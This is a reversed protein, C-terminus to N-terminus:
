VYIACLLRPDLCRPRRRCRKNCCLLIRACPKSLLIHLIHKLDLGFSTLLPPPAGACVHPQPTPARPSASGASPWPSAVPSWRICDRRMIPTPYVCALSALPVLAARGQPGRQSRSARGMPLAAAMVPTAASRSAAAWAPSPKKHTQVHSTNTSMHQYHTCPQVPDNLHM